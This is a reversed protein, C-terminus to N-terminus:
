RVQTLPHITLAIRNNVGVKRMLRGIHAKV